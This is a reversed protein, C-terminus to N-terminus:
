SLSAGPQMFLGDAQQKSRRLVARDLSDRLTWRAAAPSKGASLLSTYVENLLPTDDKVNGTLSSSIIEVEKEQGNLDPHRPVNLGSARLIEGLNMPAPDAVSATHFRDKMVYSVEANCRYVAPWPQNLPEYVARLVVDCLAPIQEPLRGTLM